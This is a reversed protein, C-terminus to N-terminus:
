WLQTNENYNKEGHTFYFIIFQNDLKIKKLEYNYGISNLLHMM